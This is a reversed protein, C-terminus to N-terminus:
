HEMGAFYLDYGYTRLTPLLVELLKVYDDYYLCFMPHHLVAARWIIKVDKAQTKATAHIWESMAKGTENYTSNKKFCHDEM